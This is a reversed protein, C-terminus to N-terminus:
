MNCYPLSPCFWCGHMGTRDPTKLYSRYSYSVYVHLIKKACAKLSLREHVRDWVNVRKELCATHSLCADTQIAACVSPSAAHPPKTLATEWCEALLPPVIVQCHLYESAHLGDTECCLDSGRDEIQRQSKRYSRWLCRGTKYSLLWIENGVSFSIGSGVKHDM